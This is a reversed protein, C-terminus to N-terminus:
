HVIVFHVLVEVDIQLEAIDGVEHVIVGPLLIVAVPAGVFLLVGPLRLHDEGVLELRVKACLSPAARTAARKRNHRLEPHRASLAESSPFTGGEM